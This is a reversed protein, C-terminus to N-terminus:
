RRMESLVETTTKDPSLGQSIQEGIQVLEDWAQSEDQISSISLTNEIPLLVAVPNGHRTVVYHAGEEKVKRVIESARTKLERIGIRAM